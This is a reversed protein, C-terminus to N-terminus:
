WESYGGAENGPAWEPSAFNMDAENGAWEPTGYNMDMGIEGLSGLDCALESQDRLWWDQSQQELAPDLVGGFISSLSTTSAPTGVSHQPSPAPSHSHPPPHSYPSYPIQSPTPISTPYSQFLQQPTPPSTTPVLPPQPILPQPTLSQTYPSTPPITEERVVDLRAIPPTNQTATRVTTSAGPVTGTSRVGKMKAEPKSDAKAGKVDGDVLGFRKAEGKVKNLCEVAEPPLEIGWRRVLIGVIVLARRAVLWCDGIEELSKLGQVIDRKATKQPLNLLHITCASHIFYGAVNCIQRLGYRRKYFRLYKSITTAASLCMKRPDVHSLPSSASSSHKLFPRFLHIYLTQHFMHMLLASPLSGEKPELEVPLKKRWDELRNFFEGLKKFEAGVGGAVGKGIKLTGPRDSAPPTPTPNPNYFELLIDNSIECLKSIQGAVARVRSPQAHTMMMGADSYPAWPDSDEGPFVEPKHVTVMSSPLQPMRGMYNSWCKDFLFCGWFTIRRADIEEDTMTSGEKLIGPNLHLGLDLAMRFSMGSYVWGKAERGCGAERVSMLALAQVTTLRPNEHEDNELIIKKAQKFFHDGATAHDNPNARSAPVSTFHCGLALMANVLLSSCYITTRPNTAPQKGILFEKYFLDKSLTTFYPYHWTFYMNILHVILETDNTVETWSTIPNEQRQFREPFSQNQDSCEAADETNPVFMLNSTAGIFRVQGDDLRLQGMKGSLEAELSGLGGDVSDEAWLSGQSYPSDEQEMLGGLSVAGSGGDTANGANEAIISDALAELSDCTRIQRVLDLVQDEPYNLIAEILTQLTSNQTKLNDIDKKYVGKRRHDSNPDYVCETHYVSACAACAPINGDCKSKRRRCAICANSVCRRKPPRSADVIKDRGTKERGGLAASAAPLSNQSDTTFTREKPLSEHAM